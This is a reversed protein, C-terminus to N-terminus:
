LKQLLKANGFVLEENRLVFRNLMEHIWNSGRGLLAGTLIVGAIPHVAQADLLAFADLRFEYAIGVGVLASWWRMAQQRLTDNIRGKLLDMFPAILFENISEGVFACFVILLATGILTEV